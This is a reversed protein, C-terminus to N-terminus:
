ANSQGLHKNLHELLLDRVQEAAEKVDDVSGPDQGKSVREQMKEFIWDRWVETVSEGVCSGSM